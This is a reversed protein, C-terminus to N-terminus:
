ELLESFAPFSGDNQLFLLIFYYLWFYVQMLFALEKWLEFFKSTKKKWNFYMETMNASDKKLDSGNQLM